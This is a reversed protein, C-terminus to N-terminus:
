KDGMFQELFKGIQKKTKETVTISIMGPKPFRGPLPPQGYVIRSQLPALYVAPLVALDDEGRVFIVTRKKQSMCGDLAKRLSSVLDVTLGGALNTTRVFQYDSGVLRKIQDQTFVKKKQIMGDLIVIDPLMNHSVLKVASADGVSVLLHANKKKFEELNEVREGLPKKLTKRLHEPLKLNIEPIAYLMGDRQVRGSRIRTSSLYSGDSAVITKCSIVPKIKKITAIVTESVRPGIVVAQISHDTLAPGFSDSLKVIESRKLFRHAKLFRELHKKRIEYPEILESLTKSVIMRDDTLGIAVRDAVSFATVLLEEHGKHLRDFTGGVAVKKYSYRMSSGKQM